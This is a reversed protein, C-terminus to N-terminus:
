ALRDSEEFLKYAIKMLMGLAFFVQTGVMFGQEVPDAWEPEPDMGLVTLGGVICLFGLIVFAIMAKAFVGLRRKKRLAHHEAIQESLDTDCSPCLPSEYARGPGPGSLPRRRKPLPVRAECVPCTVKSM